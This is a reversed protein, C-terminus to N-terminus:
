GAASPIGQVITIGRRDTDFAWSWTSPDSDVVTYRGAPVTVDPVVTWYANAVGGQGESGSAPWPGYVTGDAAELGVTGPSAGGNLYHYTVISTIFAPADLTFRTPKPPGSSVGAISTVEFLVTPEGPPREGVPAGTAAPTPSAPAPAATPSAPAASPAAPTPEAVLGGSLPGPDVVVGAIGAPASQDTAVDAAGSTGTPRTFLTQTSPDVVTFNDILVDSPRVRVVREPKWDPWAEGEYATGPALDPAATLPNGCYCRVAPVGYDDVLVATGAQLVSAFADAAGDAYGHNTVLTDTRLVLPTLRTIHARIDSVAVGRVEAWAAAKNPHSELYDALQGRDCSGIEVTGGYLGVEDGRVETMGTPSDAAVPTLEVDAGIPPTFEDQPAGLPVLMVAPPPAATSAAPAPAAVEAGDGRGLASWTIAGAVLALVAVLVVIAIRQRRRDGDQDAM